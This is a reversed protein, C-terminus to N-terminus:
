VFERSPLPVSENWTAKRKKGVGWFPCAVGRLGDDRMLDPSYCLCAETTGGVERCFRSVGGGGKEGTDPVDTPRLVRKIQDM